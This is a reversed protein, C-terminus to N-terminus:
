AQPDLFHDGELGPVVEGGRLKEVEAELDKNLDTLETKQIKLVEQDLIEAKLEQIEKQTKTWEDQFQELGNTVNKAKQEEEKCLMRVKVANALPEALYTVLQDKWKRLEVETVKPVNNWENFNILPYGDMDQSSGGIARVEDSDLIITQNRPTTEDLGYNTYAIGYEESNEDLKNGNKDSLLDSLGLQSRLSRNTKILKAIDTELRTKDEAHMKDKDLKNQYRQAQSIIQWNIQHEKYKILHMVYKRFNACLEAGEANVTASATESAAELINEVDLKTYKKPDM